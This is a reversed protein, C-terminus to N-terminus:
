IWDHLYFAFDDAISGNSNEEKYLLGEGGVITGRENISDTAIFMKTNAKVRKRNKEDYTLFEPLRVYMGQILQEKQKELPILTGQIKGEKVPKVSVKKIESICAVDQSRGLTIIGKPFKMCEELELNTLYLTLKPNILYERYRIGPGKTNIKPNGPNDANYDWRIFRELDISKTEARFNFGIKTENPTINRGACCSLFGLINSYTPVPLSTQVGSYALPLRFSATLGEVRVKLIELRSM